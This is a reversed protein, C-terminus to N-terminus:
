YLLQFGRITFRTKTKVVLPTLDPRLDIVWFLTKSDGSGRLLKRISYVLSFTDHDLNEFPFDYLFLKLLKM